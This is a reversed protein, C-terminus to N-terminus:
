KQKGFVLLAFLIAFITYIVVGIWLLSVSPNKVLYKLVTIAGVFFHVFNGMSVPRGYIGGIINSRALWNIVSFALYFNGLIQLLLIYVLQTSEMGMTALIEAPLFNLCLGTVGMAVSSVSMLLKSNM